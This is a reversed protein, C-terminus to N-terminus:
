QKPQGSYQHDISDHTPGVTAVGKGSLEFYEFYKGLASFEKKGWTAWEQGGNRKRRRKSRAAGRKRIRSSGRGWIKIFFHKNTREEAM